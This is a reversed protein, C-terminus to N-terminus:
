ELRLRRALQDEYLSQPTLSAGLGLGESLDEPETDTAGFTLDFTDLATYVTLEPGTGIVYGMGYQMSWLQGTGELNWFVNETGAHGAGSSYAGRNKSQWGDHAVSHDVLNAMALAHHFESLGVTSVPGNDASGEESFTRLFVVGNTSFDWNVIFNHRGARATCDAVLVDSSRSVEFLYGNGGGGRNQAHEMVSDVVSVQRSRVVLLGGSQLHGEDTGYSVVNRVWGNQVRDFQVAHHRDALGASEPAVASSVALDQLGVETLYEDARRVSAQDRVQLPYRIPADLTLRDGDIAEITRRFFGRWQGAAFEWRDEMAHEARFDDSIVAGVVVDNGVALGSANDLDVTHSRGVADMALSWDSSDDSVGGQFSMGAADTAGERTFHLFTADSGAGAVVVGSVAVTLAGDIRYSGPGLEVTGGNALSDIATQITATADAGAPDALVVVVPEPLATPLASEGAHYGAYSFDHLFAGDEATFEPTWDAPYLRSRWGTDTDSDSDSDEVPVDVPTPETPACAALWVAWVPLWRPYGFMV